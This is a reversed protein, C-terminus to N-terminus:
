HAVTFAIIKRAGAEKLIKRAETLTAGTTTVDDILIINRNKILEKNKVVFSGIINKLRENRDKILAQHKTEKPKILINKELYINVSDRMHINKQKSNNKNLEILKKCILLSQNFGRERQRKPALPIPILIIEKFNELLALDSLEELIRIYMIEGFINAINRKGKYKLLWIAKKIPIHRYDFLSYIWRKNEREAEPSSALCKICLDLGSKGCALCNVPFIINLITNFFPM